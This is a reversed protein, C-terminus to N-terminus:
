RACLTRLEEVWLVVSAAAGLALRASRSRYRTSSTIAAPIYASLENPGDQM